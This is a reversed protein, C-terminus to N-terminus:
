HLNIYQLHLAEYKKLKFIYVFTILYYLRQMQLTEVSFIKLNKKTQYYEINSWKRVRHFKMEKTFRQPVTKIKFSFPPVISWEGNGSFLGGLESRRRFRELFM